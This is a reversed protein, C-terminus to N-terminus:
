GRTRAKLPVADAYTVPAVPKATVPMDTAVIRDILSDMQVRGIINALIAARAATPRATSITASRSSVPQAVAATGLSMLAAAAFFKAIM